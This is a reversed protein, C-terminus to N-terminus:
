KVAKCAAAIEARASDLADILQKIEVKGLKDVSHELVYRAAGDLTGFFAPLKVWDIEGERNKLNPNNQKKLKKKEFVQWNLSDVRVVKFRESMTIETRTKM